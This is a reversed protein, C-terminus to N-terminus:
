RQREWQQRLEELEHQASAHQDRAQELRRQYDALDREIEDLETEVEPPVDYGQQAKRRELVSKRRRAARQLEAIDVIEQDLDELLSVLRENLRNYEVRSRTVREERRAAQAAAKPCGVIQAIQELDADVQREVNTRLESEPGLMALVGRCLEVRRNLPGIQEVWGAIEARFPATEAFLLAEAAAHDEARGQYVAVTIERLTSPHSALYCAAGRVVLELAKADELGVTGAGLLPVAVSRIKLHSILEMVRGVLIALTTEPQSKLNFDITIAHFIYKAPLKGATTVLVDGVSLPLEHKRTDERPGDGCARRLAGAVGGTMSLHVDDSSILADAQLQTIDAYVIRFATQLIQFSYDIRDTM